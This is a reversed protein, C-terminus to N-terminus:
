HLTPRIVDIMQDILRVFNSSNPEKQANARINMLHEITSAAGSGRAIVATLALLAAQTAAIERGIIALLDDAKSESESM